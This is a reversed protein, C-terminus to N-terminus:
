AVKTVTQWNRATADVGLIKEARTALKSKGIGAPAYLYFVTKTLEFSETPAKLENLKDIDVKRPTQALFFLHPSKEDGTAQPFPNAEVARQLEALSLLLVRPAFGHTKAIAKSIQKEVEAANKQPCRFVANGSQIYTQIGEYGLKELIAVLSKMPLLNNGGVNIGRFFAIWTPM